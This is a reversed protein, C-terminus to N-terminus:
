QGKESRFTQAAADVDTEKVGSAGGVREMLLNSDDANAVAVTKIWALKRWNKSSPLTDFGALQMNEVWDDSEMVPVGKPVSKIGTGFIVMTNMVSLAYDMQYKKLREQYDPHDPNEIERNLRADFFTPVDPRPIITLAEMMLMPPISKVELKVGTSLTIVGEDGKEELKDVAAAVKVAVASDAGQEGM